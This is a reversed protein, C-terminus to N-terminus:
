YICISFVLTTLIELIKYDPVSFNLLLVPHHMQM